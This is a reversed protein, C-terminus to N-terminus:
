DRALLDKARRIGSGTLTRGQKTKNILAKDLLHQEILSLGKGVLGMREKFYAAGVPEGHLETVMLQLYRQMERTLGDETLGSLELALGLPYTGDGPPDIEKVVSLDRLNHLIQRMLRPQNSAARAIATATADGVPPLDADGMIQDSMGGVILGAELDTYPELEIVQFRSLVAAPLVGKDTTAALITVKPMVESGAQDTLTGGEGYHLLWEIHRKGGDMATHFEDWQLVAGDHLDAFIMRAQSLKVVGSIVHPERGLAQATLYLLSTKGQGPVSSSILKHGMVDGRLAASEAAIKLSRKAATQGIYAEWSKPFNAPIM